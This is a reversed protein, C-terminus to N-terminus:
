KQFVFFRHYPNEQVRYTCKLQCYRSLDKVVENLAYGSKNIEWYHEGDFKHVPLKRQPRPLLFDYSGFKPVYAVYRWTRWADPLSIIVNRTSVRVMEEFAQLSKEYPLHELMQFACVVDFVNNEFPLATASGLHDPGLAPDIDLTEISLHFVKSMAKVVGAGPGIELVREPDLKIIEDLQHWISAWRQKSMYRSFAYHGENVQVTESM